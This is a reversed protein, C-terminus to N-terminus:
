ELTHVSARCCGRDGPPKNWICFRLGCGLGASETQMKALDWTVPLCLLMHCASAQPVLFRLRFHAGSVKQSLSGRNVSSRGATTAKTKITKQHCEGSGMLPHEPPPLPFHRPPSSKFETLM